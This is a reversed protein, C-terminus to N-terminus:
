QVRAPPPPLAESREAAGDDGELYVDTVEINVETVELGTMGEIRDIVNERVGQSLDIIPVGYDVVITLDIAAQREGVEVDVGQAPSSTGIRDRVAGIVRAGTGGMDHVGDIERAAIGAIKAVVPDAITTRGQGTVLDSDGSGSSHEGDPPSPTQGRTPADTTTTM